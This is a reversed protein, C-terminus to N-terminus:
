GREKVIEIQAVLEDESVPTFNWQDVGVNIMRGNTKWAEHVHGCINIQGNDKPRYENYRDGEFKSDGKYPLHSLVVRHDGVYAHSVIGTEILFTLGSDMYVPYAKLHKKNGVWFDDHNGAVAVISGNLHRLPELKYGDKGAGM